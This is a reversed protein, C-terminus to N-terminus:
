ASGLITPYTSRFEEWAAPYTVVTGYHTAHRKKRSSHVLEKLDKLKAHCDVANVVPFTDPSQATVLVSIDNVYSAESSYWSAWLSAGFLRWM